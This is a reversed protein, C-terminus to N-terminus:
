FFMSARNKKKGIHFKKEKIPKVMLCMYRGDWRYAEFHLQETM